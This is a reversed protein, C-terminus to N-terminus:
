EKIAMINSVGKKFIKQYYKKVNTIPSLTGNKKIHFLHFGRQLVYELITYTYTKPSPSYEFILYKCHKLIQQMGQM